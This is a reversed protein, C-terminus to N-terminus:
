AVEIEIEKSQIGPHNLNQPGEESMMLYADKINEELEALTEGQSFIGPIEKLKGVFWNDDIWYELTFQRKM